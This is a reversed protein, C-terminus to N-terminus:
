LRDTINEDKKVFLLIGSIFIIIIIAFGWLYRLDFESNFLSWRFGEVVGALPNFYVLFSLNEPLIKIPYLVPTLFMGIGIIFPALLSVDRNKLSLLCIWIGIALGIIIDIILFIFVALINFTPLINFYTMLVIIVILWGIFDLITSIGYSFPLIIRPFYIKSAIQYNQILSTGSFVAVYSFIYWSMMGTVAFLIYPYPLTFTVFRSVFFGFVLTLLIAQLLIIFIGLKTKAIKGKINRNAFVWILHKSEWVKKFYPILSIKKTSSIYVNM